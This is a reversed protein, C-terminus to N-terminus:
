KTQKHAKPPVTANCNKPCVQNERCVAPRLLFLPRQRPSALYTQKGLSSDRRGCRGTRMRQASPARFVWPVGDPFCVRAEDRLAVHHHDTRFHLPTQGPRWSGQPSQESHTRGQFSRGRVSPGEARGAPIAMKFCCELRPKLRDYNLLDYCITSTARVSM